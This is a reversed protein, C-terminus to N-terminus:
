HFINSLQSIDLSLLFKKKMFEWFCLCLFQIPLVSYSIFTNTSQKCTQDAVFLQKWIYLQNSTASFSRRKRRSNGYIQLRFIECVCRNKHLIETQLSTPSFLNLHLLSISDVKQWDNLLFKKGTSHERISQDNVCTFMNILKVFFRKITWEKLPSENSLLLYKKM